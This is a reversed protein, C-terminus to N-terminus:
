SASDRSWSEANEFWRWGGKSWSGIDELKQGDLVYELRGLGWKTRDWEFGLAGGVSTQAGPQLCRLGLGPNASCLRSRAM